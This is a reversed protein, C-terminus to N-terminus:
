LNVTLLHLQYVCCPGLILDGFKHRAEDQVTCCTGELFELDVMPGKQLVALFGNLFEYLQKPTMPSLNSQLLLIFVSFTSEEIGM